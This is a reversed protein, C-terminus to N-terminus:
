DFCRAHSEVIMFSLEADTWLAGAARANCAPSQLPRSRRALKHQKFFVGKLNSRRVEYDDMTSPNRSNQISRKFLQRDLYLHAERTPSVNWSKKGILFGITVGPKKGIVKFEAKAGTSSTSDLRTNSAPSGYALLRNHYFSNKHDWKTYCITKTVSASIKINVGGGHPSHNTKQTCSTILLNRTMQEWAHCLVFVTLCLM